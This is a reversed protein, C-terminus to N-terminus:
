KKWGKIKKCKTCQQYAGSCGDDGGRIVFEHECKGFRRKYEEPHSCRLHARRAKENAFRKWCESKYCLLKKKKM